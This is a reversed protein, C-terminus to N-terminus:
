KLTIIVNQHVVLKDFSFFVIKGNIIKKITDLHFYFLPTTERINVKGQLKRDFFKRLERTRGRGGVVVGVFDRSRVRSHPVSM